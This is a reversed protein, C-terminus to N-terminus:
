KGWHCKQCFYAATDFHRIGRHIFLDHASKFTARCNGKSHTHLCSHGLIDRISSGDGHGEHCHQAFEDFSEFADIEACEDMYCKLNQYRPHYVIDIKDIKPKSLAM